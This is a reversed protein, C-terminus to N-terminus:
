LNGECWQIQRSRMPEQYYKEARYICNKKNEQKGIYGMFILGVPFALLAIFCLFISTDDKM